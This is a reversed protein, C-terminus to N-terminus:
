SKFYAKLVCYSGYLLLGGLVAMDAGDFLYSVPIFDFFVRSHHGWLQEAVWEVFRFGGLLALVVILHSIWELIARGARILPEYWQDSARKIHTDSDM